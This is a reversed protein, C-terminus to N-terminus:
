KSVLVPCSSLRHIEIDINGCAVSLPHRRCYRRRRCDISWLAEIVVLDNVHLSSFLLSVTPVSLHMDHMEIQRKHRKKSVSRDEPNVPLGAEVKVKVQSVEVRCPISMHFLFFFFIFLSRGAKYEQSSQISLLCRLCGGKM